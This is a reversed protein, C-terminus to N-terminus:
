EEEIEPAEDEVLGPVEVPKKGAQPAAEGEKAPFLTPQVEPLGAPEKESPLEAIRRVPRDSVRKGLASAGKILVESFSCDVYNHRARKSPALHVRVRGGDGTSLFLIGSNKHEPFLHYEKELIFKPSQFRKVYCFNQSGERYLINFVRKEEVKGFWLVDHGVFLKDTVNIVKYMGNQYILLLKDYESCPFCDESKAKVQHGVFGTERDYAMTLNSLAVKRVEVEGFTAIETRRPYLHGYRNLLDDLYNITYVVMDLLHKEVAKINDRVEKIDKKKKDLDYRSIRKIRIELLREIDDNTVDRVLKDRYPLLAEAITDVVAKYSKCEEIQKYLREEIFIQELLHAHLKEKLRGHEITLEKELDRILKETNQRLVESVTLVAPNNDLIVTLNPSIPMECDTFAYLAKITDAAYIGRVLKIEIEVEEATYDNISLIKLKNGRAAKEVSEILSQTTTGYPIDKITITKENKEEIRARCRLRGNGDEYGSVDIAGGLLFDPYLVFPEDRLINKQAELLECFNHPMIKTAMGVAIGEAGQMLLLPIKAPLAVPEQMRGDYSEAFETLDKNFMTERALPSLRCEIYRAASAQDGTFINGFNGQRDILYGKNALNVLASFISADGHPHLKMCDGVVNAVKHFRGDDMNFLTQLIRRQVPKLGDAVDPIARERIVYSTYDLFNTDFLKHLEGYHSTDM